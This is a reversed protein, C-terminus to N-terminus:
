HKIGTRAKERNEYELSLEQGPGGLSKLEDIEARYGSKIIGGERVTLPAEDDIATNIMDHM